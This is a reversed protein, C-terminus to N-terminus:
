TLLELARALASAAAQAGGAAGARFERLQERATRLADRAVTDELRREVDALVPEVEAPCLNPQGAGSALRCWELTWGLTAAQRERGTQPLSAQAEAPGGAAAGGIPSEGPDRGVESALAARAREASPPDFRRAWEWDALRLGWRRWARLGDDQAFAHAFGTTAPWARLPLSPAGEAPEGVLARTLTWHDPPAVPELRPAHRWPGLVFALLAAAALAMGALALSRWGRVPPAQEEVFELAAAYAEFCAPCFRVHALARTTDARDLRGEALAALTEAEPCGGRAELNQGVGAVEGKM